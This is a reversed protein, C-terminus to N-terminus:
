TRGGPPAALGEGIADVKRSLLTFLEAESLSDIQAETLSERWVGRSAARPAPRVKLDPTALHAALADITPYDWLLTPPLSRGLWTELEGALSVAKLSDLGFASFPAGIDIEAREIDLMVSLQEAIWTRIEGASAQRRVALPAVRSPAPAARQSTWTIRLQGAEYARRCGQRELKGSSTKPVGLPPVLVITDVQIDFEEAIAKRIAAAIEDVPPDRQARVLEHVLVLREAGDREVSFAANGGERLAAHSASAVAELDQPYYNRGHLIILEKLRGTVFLEGDRLFGLDGTRMFPGAGNILRANFTHETETPRNWYGQAVSPDRVWIEGVEEPACPHCTAPHVIEVREVQVSGAGVLRRFGGTAAPAVQNRALAAADFNSVVFRDGRKRTTVMLTAEALGFCPHFADRRFGAPAFYDAFMELTEARIPESGCPAVVWHSLDLTSRQEPTVSRVCLEYAFNPAGSVTAKERSIMDLWRFPQQLFSVPAMLSLPLGVYAAQLIAGILGMDHYPPLWSVGRSEATTGFAKRMLDSNRILNGHSVMVGKPSATSGSTYQLFALDDPRADVPDVDPGQLPLDDVLLWDLTALRSLELPGGHVASFIDQTTLAARAGSEVAVANIRDLSRNRRPPYVPVAIVGAYLCGYFAGIYDLGPPCLLLVREGQLGHSRLRAALARARGDLQAYTWTEVQADTGRVFKYAVRTPQLRARAQLVEIFTAHGGVAGEAALEDVVMRESGLSLLKNAEM